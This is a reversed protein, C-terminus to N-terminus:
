EAAPATLAALITAVATPAGRRARRTSAWPCARTMAGARTAELAASSARAAAACCRAAGHDSMASDARVPASDPEMPESTRERQVASSSDGSSMWVAKERSAARSSVAKMIPGTRAVARHVVGASGTVLPQIAAM